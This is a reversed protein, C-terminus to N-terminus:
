KNAQQDIKVSTPNVTPKFTCEVLQHNVIKNQKDSPLKVSSHLYDKFNGSIDYFEKVIDRVSWTSEIRDEAQVFSDPDAVLEGQIMKIDDALRETEEILSDMSENKGDWYPDFILKIFTKFIRVEITVSGYPNLLYWLHMLFLEERELRIQNPKLKPDDNFLQNFVRLIFLSQGAQKVDFFGTKQEDVFEIVRTIDRALKEQILKM